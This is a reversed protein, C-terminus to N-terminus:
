VKFSIMFFPFLLSTLFKGFPHNVTKVSAYWQIGPLFPILLTIIGYSMNSPKEKTDLIFEWGLQNDVIFDYFHFASLVLLILFTKVGFDKVDLTGRKQWETYYSRWEKVVDDLYLKDENPKGQKDNTDGRQQHSVIEIIEGDGEVHNTQVVDWYGNNAETEVTQRHDDKVVEEIIEEVIGEVVSTKITRNEEETQTDSM